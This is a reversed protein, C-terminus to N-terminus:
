NISENVIEKIILQNISELLDSDKKAQDIKQNKEKTPQNLVKLIEELEKSNM